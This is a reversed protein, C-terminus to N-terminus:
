FHDPQFVIAGEDSGIGAPHLFFRIEEALRAYRQAVFSLPAFQDFCTPVGQNTGILVLLIVPIASFFGVMAGDLLSRTMSNAGRRRAAFSGAVIPPVFILLQGLTIIGSVIQRESFVEIMGVLATYVIVVGSLLGINAVTKWNIPKSEFTIATM